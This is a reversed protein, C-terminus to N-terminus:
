SSTTASLDIHIGSGCSVEADLVPKPPYVQPLNGKYDQAPGGITFGNSFDGSEMCPAHSPPDIGNKFIRIDEACAPIPSVRLSFLRITDGTNLDNYFSAPSLTPIISHFDNQPQACPAYIHNTLTWSMPTIGGYTQNNILPMYSTDIEIFSGAPTVISYQANFQARQAATTASGETIILYCDFLCTTTDFRMQFKVGTVGQAQGRVVAFLCIALCVAKYTLSRIM